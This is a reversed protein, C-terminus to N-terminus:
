IKPTTAIRRGAVDVSIESRLTYSSADAASLSTRTDTITINTVRGSTELTESTTRVLKWSGVPFSGWPHHEPPFAAPQALAITQGITLAALAVAVRIRPLGLTM